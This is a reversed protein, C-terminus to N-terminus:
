QINENKEKKTNFMYNLYMELEKSSFTYYGGDKYHGLAILYRLFMEDRELYSMAYDLMGYQECTVYLGSYVGVGEPAPTIKRGHAEDMINSVAYKDKYVDKIAQTRGYLWWGDKDTPLKNAEMRNKLLAQTKPGINFFAVPNGNEDYPFIIHSLIGKSAKICPIVHTDTKEM